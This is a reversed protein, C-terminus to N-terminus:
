GHLYKSWYMDLIKQPTNSPFFDSRETALYQLYAAITKRQSPTLNAIQREFEDDIETSASPELSILINTPIIDGHDFDELSMQLFAPLFFVFAAPSFFFLADANNRLFQPALSRWDKGRFSQAVQNCELHRGSQDYAIRDDGPYPAAAFANRIDERLSSELDTMDASKGPM